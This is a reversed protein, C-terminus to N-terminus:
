DMIHFIKTRIESYAPTHQMQTSLSWAVLSFIFTHNHCRYHRYYHYYHWIVHALLYKYDYVSLFFLITGLCFLQQRLKCPPSSPRGWIRDPFWASSYFRKGNEYIWSWNRRQGTRLRDSYLNSQWPEEEVCYDM